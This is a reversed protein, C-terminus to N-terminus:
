PTMQQTSGTSFSEIGTPKKSLCTAKPRKEGAKFRRSKALEVQPTISLSTMILYDLRKSRFLIM